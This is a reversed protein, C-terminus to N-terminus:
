WETLAHKKSFRWSRFTECRRMKQVRFRQHNDGPGYIWSDISWVVDKNNLNQESKKTLVLHLTTNATSLNENNM